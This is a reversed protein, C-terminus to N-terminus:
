ADHSIYGKRALDKWNPKQNWETSGRMTDRGRHEALRQGGPVLDVALHMKKWERYLRKELRTIENRNRDNSLMDQDSEDGPM